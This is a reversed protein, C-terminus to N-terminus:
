FIVTLTVVYLVMNLIVSLLPETAPISGTSKPWPTLYALLIWALLSEGEYFPKQSMFHVSGQWRVKIPMHLWMHMTCLLAYVHFPVFVCLYVFLEISSYILIYKVQFHQRIYNNTFSFYYLNAQIYPVHRSRNSM